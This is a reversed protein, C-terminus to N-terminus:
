THKNASNGFAAESAFVLNLISFLENIVIEPKLCRRVM